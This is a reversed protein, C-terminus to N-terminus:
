KGDLAHLIVEMQDARSIKSAEQGNLVEEGELTKARNKGRSKRDGQQENSRTSPQNNDIARKEPLLPSLLPV